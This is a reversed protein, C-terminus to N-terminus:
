PHPYPGRGRSGTEGQKGPSAQKSRCDLAKSFAESGRVEQWLAGARYSSGTAGLHRLCLLWPFGYRLSSLWNGLRLGAMAGTQGSAILKRLALSGPGLYHQVRCRLCRGSGLSLFLFPGLRAVAPSDGFCGRNQRWAGRETGPASPLTQSLCRQSCQSREFLAWM